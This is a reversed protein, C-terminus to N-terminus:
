ITTNHEDNSEKEHAQMMATYLVKWDFGYLTSHRNRLSDIMVQSIERPALWNKSPLKGTGSCTPCDDSWDKDDFDAVTGLGGCEGCEVEALGFEKLVAQAIATLDGEEWDRLNDPLTLLESRIVEKTKEVLDKM